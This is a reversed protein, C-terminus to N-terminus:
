LVDAGSCFFLRISVHIYFWWVKYIIPLLVFLGGGVVYDVKGELITLRAGESQSDQGWAWLWQAGRNQRPSLGRTYRAGQLLRGQAYGGFVQTCVTSFGTCLGASIWM